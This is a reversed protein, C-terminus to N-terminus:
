YCHRVDWTGLTGCQEAYQINLSQYAQRSNELSRSLQAINQELSQIQTSSTREKAKLEKEQRKAVSLESRLEDLHQQMDEIEAERETLRKQLNDETDSLKRRLEDNIRQLADIREAMDLSVTSMTPIREHVRLLTPDDDDDEDSGEDDSGHPRSPLHLSSIPYDDDDFSM